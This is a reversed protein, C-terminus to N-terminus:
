GRFSQPWLLLPGWGAQDGVERPWLHPYPAQARTLWGRSWPCQRPVPPHAQGSEEYLDGRQDGRCSEATSKPKSRRWDRSGCGLACFCPLSNVKRERIGGQGDSTSVLQMDWRGEHELQNQDWHLVASQGQGEPRQEGRWGCQGCPRGAPAWLHAGPRGVAEQPLWVCWSCSCLELFGALCYVLIVVKGFFFNPALTSTPPCCIRM